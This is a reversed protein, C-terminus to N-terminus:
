RLKFQSVLEKLRGAQEGLDVSAAASEESTASNTQVVVSIQNIGESIQSIAESQEKVSCSIDGMLKDSRQIGEVVNALADATQSAINVGKDVAHSSIEIIQSTQQSAQASKSALNRVEDAVVAFGKGAAGARAAEVAANLALINTQFAIDEITKIISVIKKSAERIENMADTMENMMENCKYVEMNSNDIENMAEQVSTETGKIQNSVDNITAALEQVASAQETSGQALAQAGNAVQSANSNVQQASDDISYLTSNLSSIINELANKIESFEGVYQLTVKQTLNGKSIESLKDKIDVIYSSLARRTTQMSSILMGLESTDAQLESQTTLNGKSMELMEKQIKNIPNIIRKRTLIIGFVQSVITVVCVLIALVKLVSSIAMRSNIENETRTQLNELLQDQLAHIKSLTNSYDSGYVYSIASANNGANVEEMASTELPVLENSLNSMETIIALEDDTIGIDEMAQVSKERNKDTNVEQMYENYYTQNGTVAYARVKETLLASADIFQQAYNNLFLQNQASTLTLEHFTIVMTFFIIVLVAFTITIGNLISTLTSQKIARKM